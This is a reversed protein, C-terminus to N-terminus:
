QEEGLAEKITKLFTNAMQYFGLTNPHTNDVTSYERKDDSFMEKGDVFYVHQDGQNLAEVYTQMVIRRNKESESLNHFYDGRTAMIIPLNPHKKRIVKYFPEHTMALQATGSNHDYDYVFAAMDLSAIYEAMEREGKASGSFGLNYIETDLMRSLMNVYCMSNNSACGGQTISSGYFVSPNNYRSITIPSVESDDDLLLSFEDVVGYLPFYIDVLKKEHDKGIVMSKEFVKEEYDPVLYGKMRHNVYIDYGSQATRPMHMYKDLVNQVSKIGINNSNTYFSLRVGSTNKSLHKLKPLEKLVKDPLRGFTDKFVNGTLHVREDFATLIM